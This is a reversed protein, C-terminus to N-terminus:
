TLVLRKTWNHVMQHSMHFGRMMMLEVVDDLSVKFRYYYHIAIMVVETPHEIFNLPTGSRENFQRGCDSCRYQLYGLGTKRTIGSTKKSHCHPCNM